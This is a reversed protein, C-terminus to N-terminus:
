LLLSVFLLLLLTKVIVSTFKKIMVLLILSNHNKFDKCKTSKAIKLQKLEMM